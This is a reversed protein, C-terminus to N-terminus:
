WRREIGGVSRDAEDERRAARDRHDQRDADRASEALQWARAHEGPSAILAFLLAALRLMAKM